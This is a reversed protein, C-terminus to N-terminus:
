WLGFNLCGHAAAAPLGSGWISGSYSTIDNELPAAPELQVWVGQKVM